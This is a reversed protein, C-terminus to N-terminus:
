QGRNFKEEARFRPRHGDLLYNITKNFIKSITSTPQHAQLESLLSGKELGISINWSFYNKM